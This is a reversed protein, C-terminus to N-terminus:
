LLSVPTWRLTTQTKEINNFNQKIQYIKHFLPSCSGASASLFALQQRETAPFFISFKMRIYKSESSGLLVHLARPSCSPKAEVRWECSLGSHLWVSVKPRTPAKIWRKLSSELTPDTNGSDFVRGWTLLNWALNALAPHLQQASASPQTDALSAEDPQEELCLSSMCFSGWLM